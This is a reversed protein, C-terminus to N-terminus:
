PKVLSREATDRANLLRHQLQERYPELREVPTDGPVLLPEGFAIAAASFPRPIMFRDWGSLVCARHSAAAFPVIPLGSRCAMFLVGPKVQLRPGRPGDVTVGLDDGAAGAAAMRFM